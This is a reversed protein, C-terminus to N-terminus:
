FWGPKSDLPKGCYSCFEARRFPSSPLNTAGCTDCFRIRGVNFGIGLALFFATMLTFWPERSLLWVGTVLAIGMLVSAISLIRRKLKANRSTFMFIANAIVLIMWVVFFIFVARDTNM